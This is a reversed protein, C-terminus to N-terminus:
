MSSSCRSQSTKSSMSPFFRRRASWSRSEVPGRLQLDRFLDGVDEDDSVGCADDM